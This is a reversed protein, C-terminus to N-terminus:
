AHSTTYGPPDSCPFSEMSAEDILDIASQGPTPEYPVDRKTRGPAANDCALNPNTKHTPSDGGAWHDPRGVVSQVSQATGAASSSVGDIM